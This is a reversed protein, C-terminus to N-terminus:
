QGLEEYLREYSRVTRQITFEREVRQRGAKGMRERRKPDALLTCVASAIAGPDRPPVLLGTEGEGVIEGVGGVNTAVVAKRAAMAELLVLGFAEDVAPHICLDVLPLMAPINPEFGPMEVADNLGLSLVLQELRTREAGEGVIVLRAAPHSQLIQPMARLLYEHGKLPHLAGVSVLLPGTSNRSARATVKAARLDYDELDIGNHIVRTKAIPFGHRVVDDQVSRSVASVADARNTFYRDLLRPPASSLMAYRYHKSVLVKARHPMLGGLGGVITARVMHLHLVDIQEAKILSRLKGVIRPLQNWRSGAIEFCPLGSERLGVLFPGTGATQDFLNCHAVSFRDLDYHKTMDLLLREVGGIGRPTSTVHLVKIKRM